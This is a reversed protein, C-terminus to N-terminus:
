GVKLYSYVSETTCEAVLSAPVGREILKEKSLNRRRTEVITVPKDDYTVSVTDSDVMMQTIKPDLEKLEEEMEKIQVKLAMRHELLRSFTAADTIVERFDPAVAETKPM